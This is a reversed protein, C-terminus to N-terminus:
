SGFHRKWAINLEDLHEKILSEIVKLQKPSFHYNKALEIEPTLWFKAEGDGSVVHVHMREEERSFFFFRFGAERFVTPSM